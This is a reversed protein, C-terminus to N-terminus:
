VLRNQTVIMFLLGPADSSLDSRIRIHYCREFRLLVGGIIKQVKLLARQVAKALGM